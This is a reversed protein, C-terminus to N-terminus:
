AKPYLIYLSLRLGWITLLISLLLKRNIFGEPTLTYFVWAVIVFGAGWFIDVISSNRLLLSAIWIATMFGFIVIGAILYIQIFTM